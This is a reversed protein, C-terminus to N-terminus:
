RFCVELISGEMDLMLQHMLLNPNGWYMAVFLTQSVGMSHCIGALVPPQRVNGAQQPSKTAMWLISGILAEGKLTKGLLDNMMKKKYHLMKLKKLQLILVMGPMLPQKLDLLLVKARKSATFSKWFTRYSPLYSMKTKWCCQAKTQISIWMWNLHRSKSAWSSTHIGVPRLM